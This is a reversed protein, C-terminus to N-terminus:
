DTIKAYYEDESWRAPNGDIYNWHILYDEESRIIHDYFSRQWLSRGSERNTMRKLTSVFQPIRQNTPAPTRSPGQSSNITLLVHIHNPMIVYHNLSLDSYIRDMEELRNQVIIGYPSLAVNPGDPVGAGVVQGFLAVRDKSCLTLFYAGNQTYDYGKLRPHKRVPKAEASM